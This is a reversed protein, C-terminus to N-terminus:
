VIQAVMVNGATVTPVTLRIQSAPDAVTSTNNVAVTSQLTIAASATKVLTITLLIALMAANPGRWGTRTTAAGLIMSSTSRAFNGNVTGWGKEDPVGPATLKGPSRRYSSRRSREDRPVLDDTGSRNVDKAASRM